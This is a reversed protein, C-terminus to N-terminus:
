RDSPPPQSAMTVQHPRRATALEARPVAAPLRTLDNKLVYDQAGAKLAAVALTEGITGSVLIVPIDKGTARLDALATLGSYGPLTHDSIIVDWPQADLAARFAEQTRVRQCVPDHGGRILERIVLAADDDSDEVLLVRLRDRESM